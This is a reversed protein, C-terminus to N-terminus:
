KQEEGSDHQQQNQQRRKRMLRKIPYWVFGFLALAVTAVVAILAGIASIGAGPGIYAHSAAPYIALCLVLYRLFPLVAYMRNM